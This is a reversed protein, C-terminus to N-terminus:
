SQALFAQAAAAPGKESQWIAGSVALWDAGAHTLISSNTPTIGGIAVCPPLGIHSLRATQWSTLIGVDARYAKIKTSSAFFAGFAVYDAGAEAAAYAKSLSNHCTIGLIREKGLIARAKIASMDHQGIHAGDCNMDAALQPYDNVLFTVGYAHAIPLLRTIARLILSEQGGKLRLQLCAVARVKLLAVLDAAFSEIEFAPPTLVYLPSAGSRSPFSNSPQPKAKHQDEEVLYKANHPQPKFTLM